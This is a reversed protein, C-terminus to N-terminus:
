HALGVGGLRESEERMRERERCRDATGDFIAHLPPPADKIIEGKRQGGGM